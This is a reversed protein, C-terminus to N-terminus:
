IRNEYKMPGHKERNYIILQKGKYKEEELTKSEEVELFCKDVHCSRETKGDMSSNCISFITFTGKGDKGTVPFFFRIKDEEIDKELAKTVFGEGLIYKAGDHNKLMDLSEKCYPQEELQTAKLRVEAKACSVAIIGGFISICGLRGITLSSFM